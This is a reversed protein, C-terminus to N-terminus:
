LRPRPPVLGMETATQALISCLHTVQAPSNHSHLIVRVREQGKPVTPARIPYLRLEWKAFIQRCFEVCVHNGPVVLAQIPSDSPWLSINTGTGLVRKIEKQFLQVMAFVRRRREEGEEGTMTSYSCSIAVLSHLPLATSFVFPRAYNWLFQRLTESGCVVAGHCGAAKGFTYIACLLSKHNELGLAALVGTGGKSGGPTTSAPQELKLDCRNTPGYLGLGHAEDVVVMARFEFALRLIEALPAVDGDMSYVSEVVILRNGRHKGSQLMRRLDRVDNHAFTAYSRKRSMKVGMVLSNHCLEDLIVLDGELLLSSLVSLNADYGSNFVTASPRNHLRALRNELSRCYTSDGSLLRSGTAGLQQTRLKRYQTEVSEQQKSCRALGLYDNSSFDVTDQINIQGLPLPSRLSGERARKQVMAMM